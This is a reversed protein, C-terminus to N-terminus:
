WDFFVGVQRGRTVTYWSNTHTRPALPPRVRPTRAPTSAPTQARTAAIARKRPTCKADGSGIPIALTQTVSPGGAPSITMTVTVMRGPNGEPDDAVNAARDHRPRLGSRGLHGAAPQDEQMNENNIHLLRDLLGSIERILGDLESEVM